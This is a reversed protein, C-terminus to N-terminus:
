YILILFTILDAISAVLNTKLRRATAHVEIPQIVIEFNEKCQRNLIM